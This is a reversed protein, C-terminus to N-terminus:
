VGLLHAILKIFWPSAERRLDQYVSHGNELVFSSLRQGSRRKDCFGKGPVNNSFREEGKVTQSNLDITYVVEFCEGERFFVITDTNWSRVTYRIFNAMLVPSDFMHSVEAISEICEARKFECVIKSVQQRFVVSSKSEVLSEFSAWTGQVTVYGDQAKVSRAFGLQVPVKFDVYVGMLILIGIFGSVLVFSIESYYLAKKLKSYDKFDLVYRRGVVICEVLQALFHGYIWLFPLPLFAYSMNEWVGNMKSEYNKLKLLGCKDIHSQTKSEPGAVCNVFDAESYKSATADWKM